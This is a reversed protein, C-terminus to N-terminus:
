MIPQLHFVKYLVILVMGTELGHQLANPSSHLSTWQDILDDALQRQMNTLLGSTVVRFLKRVVIAEVPMAMNVYDKSATSLFADKTM